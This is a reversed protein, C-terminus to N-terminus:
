PSPFQILKRSLHNISERRAASIEEKKANVTVLGLGWWLQVLCSECTGDDVWM